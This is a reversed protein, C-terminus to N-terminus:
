REWARAAESRGASATRWRFREAWRNPRGEVVDAILAGHLPAFKFGHGSGGAAVVLGARDPDHDILFDGDFADCYLCARTGVVPADALSPIAEHLFARLAEVHGDAVDPRQDPRVSIGPGHHGVKLRGDALAPLGYWGSGAIDAAWPPFAPARFDDVSDVQLHVVPQATARLRDSLWPLLTPTWAGACVLVRDAEIREGATTIVGGVSSGAERLSRFAEARWRVGASDGLELLRAVVETSEAWGARANFYGDTLAGSRWAPFRRALEAGAVREPRYGRERLVRWSEHEFRSPVMPGRSLVLFGDQHYLPRPWERNWREWGELAAEAMEHYFVDAGYDMRVVKSVDTSSAHEYPLPGPDLLTVDWDRRRLELAAAAGFVGAGVVVV